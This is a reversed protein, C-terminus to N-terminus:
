KLKISRSKVNISRSGCNSKIKSSRSKIKVQDQKIKVQEQSAGNFQQENLNETKRRGGGYGKGYTMKRERAREREDKIAKRDSSGYRWFSGKERRKGNKGGGRVVDKKQATDKKPLVLQPLSKNSTLKPPEVRKRGRPSAVDVAPLASAVRARGM